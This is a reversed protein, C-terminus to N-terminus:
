VDVTNSPCLLPTELQSVTHYIICGLVTNPNLNPRCPVGTKQHRTSPLNFRKNSFHTPMLTFSHQDTTANFFLSATYKFNKAVGKKSQFCVPESAPEAETTQYVCLSNHKTRYSSSTSQIAWLKHNTGDLSGLLIHKMCPPKLFYPLLHKSGL